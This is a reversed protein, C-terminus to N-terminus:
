KFRSICIKCYKSFIYVKDEVIISKTNFFFSKDSLRTYLLTVWLINTKLLKTTATVLIAVLLKKLKCPKSFCLFRIYKAVLFKVLFTFFFRTRNFNM